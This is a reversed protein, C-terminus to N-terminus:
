RGVGHAAGGAFSAHGELKHRVLRTFKGDGASKGGMGSIAMPYGEIDAGRRGGTGM